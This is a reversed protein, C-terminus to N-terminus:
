VGILKGDKVVAKFAGYHSAHPILEIDKAFVAKPGFLTLAPVAGAAALSSKLFSRRSISM